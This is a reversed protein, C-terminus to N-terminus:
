RGVRGEHMIRDMSRRRSGVVGRELASGPREGVVHQDRELVRALLVVAERRVLGGGRLLGHEIGAEVRDVVGRLVATLPEVRELLHQDLLLPAAGRTREPVDRPPRRDRERAARLRLLLPVEPRRGSTLPAIGVRDGLLVRAGVRGHDARGRAAVAIAPHEVALLPVHRGAVDGVEEQHVRVDVAIRRLGVTKRTSLSRGPTRSTRVGFYVCVNTNSCGIKANSPTRSGASATSPSTPWPYSSVFSQNTSSRSIIPARVIPADARASSSDSANASPRSCNPRGITSKWAISNMSASMAASIMAAVDISYRTQQIAARPPM